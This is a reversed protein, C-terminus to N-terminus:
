PNVGERFALRVKHITLTGVAANSTKQIQAFLQMGGTGASINFQKNRLVRRLQGRSNEADFIVNTLGGTSLNPAGQTLIGEMFNIRCRRKTAALTLGTDQQTLSNTGDATECLLENNGGSFGGVTRFIARQTISSITDNAANIVGFAASVANALGATLSAWIDLAVLAALPFPLVDGMYLRAVQVEATNDLTLNVGGEAATDAGSGASVPAVTPSGATKTLHSTFSAPLANGKFSEEFVVIKQSM